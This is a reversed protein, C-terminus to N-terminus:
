EDVGARQIGVDVTVVLVVIGAETEQLFVRTREKYRQQDNGLDGVEELGSEARVGLDSKETVQGVAVQDGFRHRRRVPQSDGLQNRKIPVEREARNVGGHDCGTFSQSDRLEGGDISPVERDYSGSM